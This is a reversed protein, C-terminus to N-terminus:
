KSPAYEDSCMACAQPALQSMCDIKQMLQELEAGMQQLQKEKGALEAAMTANEAALLQTEADLAMMGEECMALKTATGGTTTVCLEAQCDGSAM